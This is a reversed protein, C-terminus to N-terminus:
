NTVIEVTKGKFAVGYKIIDNVGQACLETDYKKEDIQKLATQALKSLEVGADKDAAKVEIIIGPLASKKPILQIDYRGLGSERNSRIDYNSEGIALLGLMLGHYYNEKLNDYYSITKLMFKNLAEKIKAADKDYLANALNMVTNEGIDETLLSLIENYYITKIEKNPISLRCIYDGRADLETSTSKLYGTMLLFGLINTQPEKLKPYIINTRVISQVETKGLLAHLNRYTDDNYTKLIEQIITNASTQVWYPMAQCNNSFYNIVSWPNFIETDGFKYGDYWAKLEPLKDTQEYYAAMQQVESTTFGFFESFKKDLVSFVRINNLGSFISEKAIRLIGTMVIQRAHPNDKLAASFFSRIFEVADDYYGNVFGEQIPTDYEDIIIVPAQKHHQHLMRSLAQLSFVYEMYGAQNKVIRNYLEIDAEEIESSRKLESHRMYEVSIIYKLADFAYQWKRAKIDKLSLFIVPYQGQHSTYKEGQQWIKKDQFYRGTDEATKEFFTRLMDMNLTKGFRRPRTFLAVNVKEDLIEKILLTKDVYYSDECIKKYNTTGVPLPLKRSM